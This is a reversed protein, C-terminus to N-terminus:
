KESAGQGHTYGYMVCLMEKRRLGLFGSSFGNTSCSYLYLALQKLM